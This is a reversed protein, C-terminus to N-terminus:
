KVWGLGKWATYRLWESGAAVAAVGILAIISFFILTVWQVNDWRRRNVHYMIMQMEFDDVGVTDKESPRWKHGCGACLHTRHPNLRWDIGTVADFEDVHRMKCKPCFLRM